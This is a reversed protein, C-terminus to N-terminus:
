RSIYLEIPQDSYAQLEFTQSSYNGEQESCEAYSIVMQYIGFLQLFWSSVDVAIPAKLMSVFDKMASMPFQGNTGTILGKVTIAYDGDSIFEKVTTNRGQVPTIVINKQQAVNYLVTEFVMDPFSGQNGEMDTFSRGKITLNSFVSTGLMKSKSIPDDMEQTPIKGKYIESKLLGVGLTKIVIDAQNVAVFDNNPPIIISSAM